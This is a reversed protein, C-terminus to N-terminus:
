VCLLNHKPSTFGVCRSSTRPGPPLPQGDPERLQQRSGEEQCDGAPVAGRGSELMALWRYARALARQLPTPESGWPRPTVEGSPLTVTKRGSRRKIQIPVSITLRGDSAPIVQPEGTKNIRTQSIQSM